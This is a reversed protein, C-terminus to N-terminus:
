VNFEGIKRFIEQQNTIDNDITRETVEKIIKYIDDEYALLRKIDELEIIDICFSTTLSTLASDARSYAAAILGLLFFVAIGIGLDSGVAITSFLQDENRETLFHQILLLRAM